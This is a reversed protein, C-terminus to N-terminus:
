NHLFFGIEFRYIVLITNWTTLIWRCQKCHSTRSITQHQTKYLIRTYSWKIRFVWAPQTYDHLWMGRETADRGIETREASALFGAIYLANARGGSISSIVQYRSIGTSPLGRGAPPLSLPHLGQLSASSHHHSSSFAPLCPYSSINAAATFRPKQRTSTRRAM